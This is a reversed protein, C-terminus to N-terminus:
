TGAAPATSAREGHGPFCGGLLLLAAVGGIPALCVALAVWGAVPRQLRRAGIGLWVWHLLAAATAALALLAARPASALTDDLMPHLFRAGAACAAVLALASAALPAVAAHDRPANMRVEMSQPCRAM